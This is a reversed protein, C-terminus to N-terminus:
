RTIFTMLRRCSLASSKPQTKSNANSATKLGSTLDANCNGIKKVTSPVPLTNEKSESTTSEKEDEKQERQEVKERARREWFSGKSSCNCSHQQQYWMMFLENCKDLLPSFLDLLHLNPNTCPVGGDMVELYCSIKWEKIKAIGGNYTVAQPDFLDLLPPFLTDLYHPNIVKPLVLHRLKQLKQRVVSKVIRKKVVDDNNTNDADSALIPPVSTTSKKVHCGITDTRNKRETDIERQKQQQQTLMSTM